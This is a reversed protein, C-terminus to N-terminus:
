GQYEIYERTDTYATSTHSIKGVQILGKEVGCKIEYEGNPISTTNIEFVLYDDSVGSDTLGTFSIEKGTGQSKLILDYSESSNETNKPIFLKSKASKRDIFIM